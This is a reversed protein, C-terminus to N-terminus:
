GLRFTMSQCIVEDDAKVGLILGLHIAATGSSLAGVFSQNGLYNELDEELGNVNPGLPAVILMLAEQVFKNAEEWILLFFAM